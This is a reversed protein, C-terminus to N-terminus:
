FFLILHKRNISTLYLLTLLYSLLYSANSSAYILQCTSLCERSLYKISLILASYTIHLASFYLLASMAVTFFLVTFILSTCSLLRFISCYSSTSFQVLLLHTALHCIAREREDATYIDKIMKKQVFCPMKTFFLVTIFIMIPVITGAFSSGTGVASVM